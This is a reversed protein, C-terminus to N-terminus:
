SQPRQQRHTILSFFLHLIARTKTVMMMPDNPILTLNCHCLKRDGLMTTPSQSRSARPRIYMSHCQKCDTKGMCITM